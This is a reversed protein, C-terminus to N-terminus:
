EVELTAAETAPDIDTYPHVERFIVEVIMSTDHEPYEEQLEKFRDENVWDPYLVGEIVTAM